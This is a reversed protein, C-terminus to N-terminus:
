ECKAPIFYLTVFDCVSLSYFLLCGPHWQTCLAHVCAYRNGYAQLMTVTHPINNLRTLKNDSVNLDTLADFQTLAQDLEVIGRQHLDLTLLFTYIQPATRYKKKKREAILLQKLSESQASWNLPVDVSNGARESSLLV